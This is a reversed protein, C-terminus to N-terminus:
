ASAPRRPHTRRCPAKMRAMMRGDATSLDDDGSAVTFIEVGTQEVLRVLDEPEENRRTIRSNDYAVLVDIEDAKAAALMAKYEPRANKSYVSASIDNDTYVTVVQLGRRDALARCDAEQRAVGLGDQETDRSIRFYIAARKSMPLGRGHAALRRPPCAEAIDGSTVSLDGELYWGGPVRTVTLTETGDAITVRARAGVPAAEM